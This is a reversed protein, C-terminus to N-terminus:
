QSLPNMGVVFGNRGVTISIALPKDDYYFAMVPRGDGEGQKGTETGVTTAAKAVDALKEVPINKPPIRSKNGMNDFILHVLSDSLNQNAIRKKKLDMM